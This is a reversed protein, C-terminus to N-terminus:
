LGGEELQDATARNPGSRTKCAEKLFVVRGGGAMRRVFVSMKGGEEVKLAVKICDTM